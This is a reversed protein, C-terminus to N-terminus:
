KQPVLWVCNGILCRKDYSNISDVMDKSHDFDWIMCDVIVNFNTSIISKFIFYCWMLVKQVDISNADDMLQNESLVDIRWSISSKQEELMFIIHAHTTSSDQRNDDSFHSHLECTGNLEKDAIKM